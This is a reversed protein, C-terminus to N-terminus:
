PLSPPEKGGLVALEERSLLRKKGENPSAEEFSLTDKYGLWNKLLFIGSAPNIRGSLNAQEVFAWVVRKAAEVAEQRRQSCGEGNSWKYLTQRSVGLALALTEIGPRLCSTQCTRFFQDIRQEVEEDTAPKGLTYLQELSTTVEQVATPEINELNKQPFPM